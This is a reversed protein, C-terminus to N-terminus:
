SKTVSLAFYFQVAYTMIKNLSKVPIDCHIGVKKPNLNKIESGVDDLSVTNFNFTTNSVHKKIQLINPHLDFKRLAIDVPDNM